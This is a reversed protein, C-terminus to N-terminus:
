SYPLSMTNTASDHYSGSYRPRRDYGDLESKRFGEYSAWQLRAPARRTKDCSCRADRVPGITPLSLLVPCCQDTSRDSHSILMLIQRHASRISGTGSVVRIESPSPSVGSTRDLRIPGATPIFFRYKLNSSPFGLPEYLSRKAATAMECMSALPSVFHM